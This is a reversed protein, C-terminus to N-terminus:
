LKGKLQRKIVTMISRASVGNLWRVMWGDGTGNKGKTEKSIKM